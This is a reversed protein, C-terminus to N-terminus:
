SEDEGGFVFVFCFSFFLSFFLFSVGELLEVLEGAKGRGRVHEEVVEVVQQEQVGLYEVIKKEVFPRLKEVIVAEDVFDWKVDWNWLGEKETPIEAALQRVAQDREEDSLGANATSPDFKIPILTRKSTKSMDEEDELLGEVEAVTRRPPAAKQAKQAAAGLSLKFPMQAGVRGPRAELEEAQRDLFSDAMGRAQERNATDRQLERHEAERDREDAASERSRFAARNRTWQSRDSYYEHTKRAAEAEDDWERLIKAMSEKETAAHAADEEEREKERQLAATRSRERNLWRREQDLYLKEQDATKKAKRRAELESDSASDDEEERNIWISDRSTGNTSGNVFSVGQQYDRPIQVGQSKPGSPVNPVGRPGLPINNSGASPGSPTQPGPSALRSARPAGNRQREM